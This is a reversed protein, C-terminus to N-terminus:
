KLFHYIMSVNLKHGAALMGLWWINSYNLSCTKLVQYCKSVNLECWQWQYDHLTCNFNIIVNSVNCYTSVKNFPRQYTTLSAKWLIELNLSFCNRPFQGLLHPRYKGGGPNFFRWTEYNQHCIQLCNESTMMVVPAHGPINFKSIDLGSWWPSSHSVPPNLECM